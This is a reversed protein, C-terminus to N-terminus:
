ATFVFKWKDGLYLIQIEPSCFDDLKLTSFHIAYGWVCVKAIQGWGRVGPSIEERCFLVSPDAFLLPQTHENGLM